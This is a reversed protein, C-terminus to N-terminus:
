HLLTSHSDQGSLTKWGSFNYNTGNIGYETGSLYSALTNYDSSVIESAAKLNYVYGNTRFYSNTVTLQAGGAADYFAFEGSSGYGFHNGDFTAGKPVGFIDTASYGATALFTNNNVSATTNSQFDLGRSGATISAGVINVRSSGISIGTFSGAFTGGNVALGTFGGSIVATYVNSITVNNLTLTGFTGSTNVHGYIGQVNNNQATNTITVNNFTVSEGAGVNKNVIILVGGNAGSQNWTANTVTCNSIVAGPAVYMNHLSGDTVLCNSASVDVVMSGDQYSNRRTWVGSIYSPGSLPQQRNTYAYTKGNTGPNSGDTAHVYLTIPTTTTSSPYYSGATAECNAVSSALVLQTTNEWVGIFIKSAAYQLPVSAQYTYTKGSTLSWAGASISDSGDLLPMSGPGYAYVGVGAPLAMDFSQNWTSGNALGVGDGGHFTQASLHTLSAFPRNVSGDNSDSGTASNVAYRFNWNNNFKSQDDHYQAKALAQQGFLCIGVISIFIIRSM